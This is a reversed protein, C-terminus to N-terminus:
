LSQTSPLAMTRGFRNHGIFFELSIMPFPARLGGAQLETSGVVHEVNFKRVYKSFECQWWMTVELCLLTKGTYLM